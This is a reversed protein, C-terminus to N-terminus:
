DKRKNLNTQLERKADELATAIRLRIEPGIKDIARWIARSALHGGNLNYTFQNVSGSRRGAVEFIAGSADEQILAGASTTYDGRVKGQRRTKKIGDRAKGADWAPWGAGGRVTKRPNTAPVTRWGRMPPDGPIFGKALSEAKLLEENIVRNFKRVAGKDFEKLADLTEKVGTLILPQEAM